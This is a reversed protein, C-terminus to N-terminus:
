YKIPHGNNKLVQKIREPMSVVLKNCVEPTIDLCWASTIAETLDSIREYTAERIKAKIIQWLNEIPNLDPSNGPWDMLNIDNDAFWKKVKRATHCPANDQQFFNTGAVHMSRKLKENLIDIYVDANVKQGKDMFHLAGRGHSSFCGWVMVSPPHKLTKLTYRPDCADSGSTRRVYQHQQKFQLFTSEDSFSVRKWEEATWNRYKRCWALRKKRAKETLLPKKRPTKVPMDLDKQLRHRVTRLAMHDLAPALASKVESASAFPHKKVERKMMNDVRPTTKRPRGSRKAVEISGTERYRKLISSVANQSIGYREGIEKQTLSSHENLAIIATKVADTVQKGKGM